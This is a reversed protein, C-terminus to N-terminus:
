SPCGSRRSTERRAADRAAPERGVRHQLVFGTHQGRRCSEPFRHHGGPEDCLAADVRQHEHMPPLQEVLPDLTERGEQVHRCLRYTSDAAAAVCRGPQEIHGDNLAENAVTHHVVAHAVVALHDDIFTVVQRRVAELLDDAARLRSEDQAQGRRHRPLVSVMGDDEHLATGHPM